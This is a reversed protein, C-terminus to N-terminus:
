CFLPERCDIPAASKTTKPAALVTRIFTGEMPGCKVFVADRKACWCRHMPGIEIAQSFASAPFVGIGAAAIALAYRRM